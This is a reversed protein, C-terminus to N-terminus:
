EEIYLTVPGDNISEVEMKAGFKGTETKFGSEKLYAAFKLYLKEAEEPALANVFSPRRGKSTDAYLTFQSVVLFEAGISKASLNMKGETDEFIRLNMLKDAVKRVIDDNDGDGAGVLLLMGRDISAITQNGVRVSASKVRQVVVRM